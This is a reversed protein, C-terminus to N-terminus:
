TNQDTSSTEAMTSAIRQFFFSNEDQFNPPGLLLGATLVLQCTILSGGCVHGNGFTRDYSAFRLSVQHEYGKMSTVNFGGVIRPTAEQCKVALLSMLVVSATYFFKVMVCDSSM